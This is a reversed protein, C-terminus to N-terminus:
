YQGELEAKIEAPLNAWVSDISEKRRALLPLIATRAGYKAMANAYELAAVPDADPGIEVTYWEGATLSEYNGLNIKYEAYATASTGTIGPPPAPPTTLPKPM